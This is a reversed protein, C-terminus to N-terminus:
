TGRPYTNVTCYSLGSRTIVSIYNRQGSHFNPLAPLVFVEKNGVEVPESGIIARGSTNYFIGFWLPWPGENWISMIDRGSADLLVPVTATTNATLPLGPKNAALLLPVQVSYEVQINDEIAM